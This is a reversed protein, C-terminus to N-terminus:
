STVAQLTAHIRVRIDALGSGLIAAVPKGAFRRLCARAAWEDNLDSALGRLNRRVLEKTITDMRVHDDATSDALDARLVATAAQRYLHVLMAVTAARATHHFASPAPHTSKQESM